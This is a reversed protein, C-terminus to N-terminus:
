AEEPLVDVLRHIEQWQKECVLCEIIYYGEGESSFQQIDSAECYLCRVGGTALYKKKQEETM